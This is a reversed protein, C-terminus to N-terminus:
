AEVSFDSKKADGTGSICYKAIDRMADATNKYEHAEAISNSLYLVQNVDKALVGVFETPVKKYYVKFM